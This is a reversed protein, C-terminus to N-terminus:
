IKQMKQLRYNNSGMSRLTRAMSKIQKYNILEPYGTTRFEHSVKSDILLKASEFARKGSNPIKTILEYEDFPAKLDM